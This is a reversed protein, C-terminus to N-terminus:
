GNPDHEIGAFERNVRMSERRLERSLAALREARFKAAMRRNMRAIAARMYEARSIRLRRALENSEALLEDPLKLAISTM